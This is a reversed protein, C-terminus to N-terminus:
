TVQDESDDIVSEIRYRQGQFFGDLKPASKDPKM